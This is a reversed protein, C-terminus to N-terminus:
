SVQNIPTNATMGFHIPNGNQSGLPPTLRLSAEYKTRLLWRRRPVLSGPLVFSVGFRSTSCALCSLSSGAAILVYSPKHQKKELAQKKWKQASDENLTGPFRAQTPAM